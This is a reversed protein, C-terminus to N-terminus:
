SMEIAEEKEQYAPPPGQNLYTISTGGRAAGATSQTPNASTTNFPMTSVVQNQNNLASSVNQANSAPPYVAMMRTDGNSNSVIYSQNGHYM